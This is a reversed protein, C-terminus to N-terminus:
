SQCPRRLRIPGTLEELSSVHKVEGKQLIEADGRQVMDWAIDRIAPMLDRWTSAGAENIVSTPLARAVESPCITKPYARDELFRELITGIERCTLEDTLPMIRSYFAAIVTDLTTKSAGLELTTQLNAGRENFCFRSELLCGYIM